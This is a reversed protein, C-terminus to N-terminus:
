RQGATGQRARQDLWRRWAGLYRDSAVQERRDAQPEARRGRRGPELGGQLREHALGEYEAWAAQVEALLEDETRRGALYYGLLAAAAAELEARDAGGWAGPREEDPWRQREDLLGLQELMRWVEARAVHPDKGSLRGYLRAARAQEAGFRPWHGSRLMRVLEVVFLPALLWSLHLRRLRRVVRRTRRSPRPVVFQEYSDLLATQLAALDEASAQEDGM